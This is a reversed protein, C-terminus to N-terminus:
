GPLTYRVIPASLTVVARASSTVDLAVSTGHPSPLTALPAALDVEPAPGVATGALSLTVSNASAAAPGPVAGRLYAALGQTGAAKLESFLLGDGTVVQGAGGLLATAAGRRLKLSLWVHGQPVATAPLAFPIAVPQATEVTVPESESLIDGPLGGKDARLQAIVEAAAGAALIAQAGTVVRAAALTVRSAVVHDPSLAIGDPGPAPLAGAGLPPGPPDAAGAAVSYGFGGGVLTGQAPLRLVLRQTERVDGAFRLVRKGPAGTFGSRGLVLSLDLADIRASCPEDSQLILDVQLPDPLPADLRSLATNLAERLDAGRSASAPFVPQGDADLVPPLAQPEGGEVALLVQPTVPAYRVQVASIAGPTLAQDGGNRRRLVLAADTVNLVAGLTQHQGVAVAEDAVTSGDFRFAAIRDGSQPAALRVRYIRRARPLTLVLGNGGPSLTAPEPAGSATADVTRAIFSVNFVANEAVTATEAEGGTPISLSIVRRFRGGPAAIDLGAHGAGAGLDSTRVRSM